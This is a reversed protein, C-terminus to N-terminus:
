IKTLILSLRNQRFNVNGRQFGLIGNLIEPIILDQVVPAIPVADGYTM